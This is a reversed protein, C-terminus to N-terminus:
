PVSFDIVWNGSEQSVTSSVGIVQFFTAGPSFPLPEGDASLLYLV